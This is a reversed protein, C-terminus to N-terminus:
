QDARDRVELATLLKIIKQDKLHLLQEMKTIKTELITVTGRLEQITSEKEILIETDVDLATESVEDVEEQDYRLSRDLEPMMNVGAAGPAPQRVVAAVPQRLQGPQLPLNYTPRQSADDEGRPTWESQKVVQRDNKQRRQPAPQSSAVARHHKPIAPRQKAPMATAPVQASPLNADSFMESRKTRPLKGGNAQISQVKSHLTSLVTEISGSECECVTKIQDASITFGMKKFVKQNLTNWNYEKQSVSNAASYNHLDVLKPFYHAVLEATLVGDSFDRSISRKPRSLPIDDIWQYLEQMNDEEGGM